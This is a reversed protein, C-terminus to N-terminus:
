NSYTFGMQPDKEVLDRIVEIAGPTEVWSDLNYQLVVQMEEWSGRSYAAPRATLNEGPDFFAPWFYHNVGKVAEYLNLIQTELEKIIPTHNSSNVVSKNMAVISGNVLQDRLECIIDPPAKERIISLNRLARLDILIRIKILLIVVTHSLDTWRCLFNEHPPEFM